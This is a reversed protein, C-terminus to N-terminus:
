LRPIGASSIKQIAASLTMDIEAAYNAVLTAKPALSAAIILSVVALVLFLVFVFIITSVSISNYNPRDGRM